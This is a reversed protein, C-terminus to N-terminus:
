FELKLSPVVLGTGAEVKGLIKAGQEKGESEIFKEADLMPMVIVFGLGMNFTQHMERTEVNGWEQLLRFIDPVPMPDTINFLLDKKLRVINKLGGGTINALGHLEYKAIMELVSKVYITTPTLLVEGISKGSHDTGPYPDRYGMGRSEVIKRALTLGNSHIGSSPLGVIADGPAINEGTIIEDRKVYGLCTGALDIGNIMGKLTATEGGIINMGSLEAGKSLGVGIEAVIKSSPEEMALYDVFAIPKAGICITDNVNMAICDIGVTDWKALEEAILIKTGVGDTCLSLAYDGFEVLGTFHGALELPKGLGEIEQTRFKSVLSSIVNEEAEIDVGAERYTLGKKPQNEKDDSM